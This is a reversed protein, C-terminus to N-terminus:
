LQVYYLVYLLLLIDLVLLPLPFLVSHPYSLAHILSTVTQINYVRPNTKRSNLYMSLKGSKQTQRHFSSLFYIVKKNNTGWFSCVQVLIICIYVEFYEGRKRSSVWWNSEVESDSTQLNDDFLQTHISHIISVAAGHPPISEPSLYETSWNSTPTKNSRLFVFHLETTNCNPVVSLIVSLM